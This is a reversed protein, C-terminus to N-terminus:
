VGGGGGGVAAGRWGPVACGGGARGARVEAIALRGQALITLKLVRQRALLELLRAYSLHMSGLPPIEDEFNVAREAAEVLFDLVHGPPSRRTLRPVWRTQPYEPAAVEGAEEVTADFEAM